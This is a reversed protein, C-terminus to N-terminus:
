SRRRLAVSATKIAMTLASLIAVVMPALTLLSTGTRLGALLTQGLSVVQILATILSVVGTLSRLTGGKSGTILSLVSTLGGALARPLVGAVAGMGGTLAAVAVDLITTVAMALGPKRLSRQLAQRAVPVAAGSLLARIDPREDGVITQWPVATAM